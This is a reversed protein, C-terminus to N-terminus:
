LFLTKHQAKLVDLVKKLYKIRNKLSQDNQIM